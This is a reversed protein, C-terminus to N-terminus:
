SLGSRLPVALTSSGPSVVDEDFSDIGAARGAIAALGGASAAAGGTSDIQLSPVLISASSSAPPLEEEGPRGEWETGSGPDTFIDGNSPSSPFDLAM